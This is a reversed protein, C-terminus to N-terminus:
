AETFAAGLSCPRGSPGDSLGPSTQGAEPESGPGLSCLGWVWEEGEGGRGRLGAGRPLPGAGQM